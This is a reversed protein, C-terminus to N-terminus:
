FYYAQVIHFGLLVPLPWLTLVHSWALRSRWRRARSAAWRHELAILAGLGGGTALAISALLALAFTLNAGLRGGTHVVVALAALLGVAVHFLRWGGFTLWEFRRIRKRLSLMALAAMLALLTYGSAQKAVSERWLRDWPIAVDATPSYPLAPALVLAAGMALGALGLGALLRSGSIPAAPAAAGLLEVVLPRCSGCVTSAGTCASVQEATCAGEAIAVGIRGRTVGTCSCVVANAPWSAVGHAEAEVTLRGMRRLRLWEWPWLRRGTAVAEQVRALENWRGVAMAGVVRGHLTVVKRYIGNRPDSYRHEVARDPRQDTAAEGASFVECGLVKLRAALLTGEYHAEGGCLVQAAVAAQEYGPAVLGHVRGRHQACEGVAFIEVDSTRLQDDVRVGHGVSLGAELALEVAPRIGTAVIITDCEIMAGSRLRVACAEGDGEIRLVADDLRVCIGQREVEGRLLESAAKDLQQPMLRDVHEVVTVITNHRRMARAAELGLLGGGIVVTHRSRVRRALLRQADVFDRFTYVGRHRVGEINPVHPTSGTALVLREYRHVVGRNDVLTRAARDIGTVRTGLLVETRADDPIDINDALSSWPAEGAVVSTLRVRNYPLTEEAGFIRIPLHPSRRRLEAALRAGVPGCGIITVGSGSRMAGARLEGRGHTPGAAIFFPTPTERAERPIRVGNGHVV